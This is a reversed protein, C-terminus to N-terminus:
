SLETDTCSVKFFVAGIIPYGVLFARCARRLHSFESPWLFERLMQLALAGM